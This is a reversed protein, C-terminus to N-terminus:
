KRSYRFQWTIPEIWFQSNFRPRRPRRCSSGRTSFCFPNFNRNKIKEIRKPRFSQKQFVVADSFGVLRAGSGAGFSAKAWRPEFLTWFRAFCFFSKQCKETFNQCFYSFIPLNKLETSKRSKVFSSIHEFKDSFQLFYKKASKQVTGTFSPNKRKRSRKQFCKWIKNWVRRKRM